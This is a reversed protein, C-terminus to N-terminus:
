GGLQQLQSWARQGESTGDAGQKLLVTLLIGGAFAVGLPKLTPNDGFYLLVAALTAFGLGWKAFSSFSSLVGSGSPNLPLSMAVASSGTALYQQFQGGTFTAWPDWNTGKQSIVVAAQANTLPDFAQSQSLTQSNNVGSHPGLIQWLGAAGSPNLANPDGGSEAQAIAAATPASAPSGGAQEWISELQAYTYSM